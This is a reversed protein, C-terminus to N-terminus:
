VLCVESGVFWVHDHYGTEWCLSNVRADLPGSDQIGALPSQIQNKTIIFIM